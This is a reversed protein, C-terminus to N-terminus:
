RSKKVAACVHGTPRILRLIASFTDTVTQSLETKTGTPNKWIKESEKGFIRVVGASRKYLTGTNSHRLSTKASRILLLDHAIENGAREAKSTIESRVTWASGNSTEGAIRANTFPAFFLLARM